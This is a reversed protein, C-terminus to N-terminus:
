KHYYFIKVFTLSLKSIFPPFNLHNLSLDSTQSKSKPEGPYSNISKGDLKLLVSRNRYTFSVGRLVLSLKTLCFIADMGM